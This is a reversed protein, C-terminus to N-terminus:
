EELEEIFWIRSQYDGTIPNKLDSGNFSPFLLLGFNMLVSGSVPYDMGTVTYLKERHLGELRLRFLGENPKALIQYWGVIAQKKDTSTVMWAIENGTGEFPSILRRFDGQQILSRYKKSSSIQKKVHEREIESLKRVDLEYGFTGFYAVDGRMKLTTNRLMQHNPIDSVHTGISSLPYVMSTGYQIKIREVADTNDSTWFQPAYYLLGPDVRGGGSACSEFLIHPYRSTLREYLDYVGLIYRHFIEGQRDAQLNRSFAETINRNMDWKIFSVSAHDLIQILQNYIGDVVERRSFDLVYQNRSHSQNRLPDGILWEPHRNFLDSKKNIMEPEIWLGFKLGMDEIKKAIGKIGNPLKERNVHWDGLGAKDNNRKGFWGDDLIFVEIGLSKASQALELIVEEDFDFYVAEWSNLVIPRPSDQWRKQILNKRFLNHYVRSLEGMGKNSYAILAEPAQFSEHEKLKWRFGEPHIGGVIRTQNDANVEGQILFNGSYVLSIGLAEGVAETTHKRKLIIFPNEYASSAGCRSGISQIGPRLETIHVHRERAWNGSLQLWQWDGDFLDISMSMLRDIFVEQTGENTVKANRGIVPYDKFITYTLTLRICAVRDYHDIELTKGDALDSVWTSPLGGLKPKGEIIRHCEYKFDIVRSGSSLQIDIAPDRFDTTGYSPFEQREISLSIKGSGESLYPILARNQDRRFMHQRLPGHIPNGLYFHGLHGNELIGMIYSFNKNQLHFIQTDENFVIKLDEWM